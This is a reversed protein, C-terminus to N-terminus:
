EPLGFVYMASDACVAVYQGHGAAYSIPGSGVTGGLNVSWLLSGNRADLAFFNGEKGGSFLLDSATTLIGSQTYDVM